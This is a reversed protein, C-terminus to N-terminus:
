SLEDQNRPKSLSCESNFIGVNCLQVMKWVFRLAAQVQGLDTQCITSPKLKSSPDLHSWFQSSGIKQDAATDGATCIIYFVFFVNAGM